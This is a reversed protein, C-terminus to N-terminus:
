YFEIIDEPLNGGIQITGLSSISIEHAISSLSFLNNTYLMM